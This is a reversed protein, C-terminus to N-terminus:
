YKDAVLRPLTLAETIGARVAGNSIFALPHFTNTCPVIREQSTVITVSGMM